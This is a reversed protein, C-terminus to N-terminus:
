CGVAADAPRPLFLPAGALSPRRFLLLPGGLLEGAAVLPTYGPSYDFYHWLLRVGGIKGLPTDLDSLLTYFQTGFVKAFGYTLIWMATWYRLFTPVQRFVEANVSTTAASDPVAQSVTITSM